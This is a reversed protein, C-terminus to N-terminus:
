SMTQLLRFASFSTKIIEIFSAVNVVYSRVTFKIPRRARLMMMLINKRTKSQLAIWNMHYISNEVDLSELIIENGYWCYLFIQMLCTAFCFFKDVFNFGLEDFQALIFVTMCLCPITIILQAAMISKFCKHVSEAFEYIKAHKRSCIRLWTDIMPINKHIGTATTVEQGKSIFNNSSFQMRYKLLNLQTVVRLVLCVFFSDVSIQLCIMPIGAILQQLYSFLYIFINETKYPYWVEIPLVLGSKSKLMPIVAKIALATSIGLAYLETVLRTENEFREIIEAEQKNKPQYWSDDSCMSLVKSIVKRNKLLFYKKYAALTLVLLAFINDYFLDSETNKLLLNMFMTLWFWTAAIIQFIEFIKYLKKLSPSWDSPCWVGCATFIFFQMPFEHFGLDVSQIIM